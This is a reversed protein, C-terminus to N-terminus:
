PRALVSRLYTSSKSAEYDVKVTISATSQLQLVKSAVM